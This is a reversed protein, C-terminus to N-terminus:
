DNENEESEFKNCFCKKNGIIVNCEDGYFENHADEYHGCNKCKKNM